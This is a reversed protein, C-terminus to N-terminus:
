LRYTMWTRHYRGIDLAVPAVSMAATSDPLLPASCEEIAPALKSHLSIEIEGTCCTSIGPNKRSFGDLTAFPFSVRVWTETFSSWHSLQRSLNPVSKSKPKARPKTAMKRGILSMMQSTQCRLCFWDTMTQASKRQRHRMREDRDQDWRATSRVKQKNM